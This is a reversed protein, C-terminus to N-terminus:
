NTSHQSDAQSSRPLLDTVIKVAWDEIKKAFSQLGDLCGGIPFFGFTYEFIDKELRVIDCPSVHSDIAAETELKMHTGDIDVYAHSLLELCIAQSVSYDKEKFSQYLGSPYMVIMKRARTATMKCIYIKRGAPTDGWYKPEIM